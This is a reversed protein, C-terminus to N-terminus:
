KITSKSTRSTSQSHFRCMVYFSFISLINEYNIVIWNLFFFLLYMGREVGKSQDRRSKLTDCISCVGIRSNKPICVNNFRKKWIRTFYAYTIFNGNGEVGEDYEKYLNYIERKTFNDPIHITDRDTICEAHKSFLDCMSSLTTNKLPGSERGHHVKSFFAPDNELRTQIRSLHLNGISHIKKFDKRCLLLNGICYDYGTKTSIMCGMLYSNQMNKNMSFCTKRKNLTYMYDM